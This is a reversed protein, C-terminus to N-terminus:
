HEHNHIHDVSFMSAYNNAINTSFPSFMVVSNTSFNINTTGSIVKTADVFMHVMPGEDGHAARVEAKEDPFNLSVTKINNITASSYGGYGGIHYLYLGTDLFSGEMKLFIYGSNWTWYMGMAAGTVDLAGQRESIPKTNRLSDVGVTFKVGSYNGEPINSLTIERTSANSEKILFYSSDQPYIYETGDENVLIINSVYYDFKSVTYNQGLSNSYFPSDLVLNINGMRNDFEIMLKGSRSPDIDNPSHSHDEEKCAILISACALALIYKTTFKM